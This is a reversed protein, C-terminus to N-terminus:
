RGSGAYVDKGREPLPSFEVPVWAYRGNGDARVHGLGPFPLHMGAVLEGSKAAAQFLAKRTAVAQPQDVDFEISVEPRAFQVAHAHVIDGWILLQQGHSEVAFASHGPTHGHAAVARIGPQLEQGAAFTKWRGAAQYPAAMDRARQFRSRAAESAAAAQEASLWYDAEERAVLVEARAFVAKGAADTLGCAHDCHLHTLLVMDVQAPDYGAAKMNELLHGAGPGFFKGAGTDVLVLRSGTDVLYANVATQMKPHGVFMGALMREVDTTAAGRLLGADVQLVGDFLATVGFDGLQVRYYGPVQVPAAAAQAPFLLGLLPIACLSWLLSQVYPM